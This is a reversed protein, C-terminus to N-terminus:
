WGCAREKEELSAAAQRWPTVNRWKLTKNLWFRARYIDECDGREILRDHEVAAAAPDGNEASLHDWFHAQSECATWIAPPRGEGPEWTKMMCEDFIRMLMGASDADGLLAQKKLRRLQPVNVDAAVTVQQAARHVIEADSQTYGSSSGPAFVLVPVLIVQGAFMLAVLHKMM